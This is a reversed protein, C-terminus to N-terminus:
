WSLIYDGKKYKKFDSNKLTEETEERNIEIRQKIYNIAQLYM